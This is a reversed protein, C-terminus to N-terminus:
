DLQTNKIVKTADDEHAWKKFTVFMAMALDTRDGMKWDPFLETVKKFLDTALFGESQTLPEYAATEDDVAKVEM